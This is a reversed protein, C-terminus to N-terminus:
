ALPSKGNRRYATHLADSFTQEIEHAIQAVSAAPQLRDVEEFFCRVMTAQHDYTVGHRPLVGAAWEFEQKALEPAEFVLVAQVMRFFRDVAMSRLRMEPLIGGELKLLSELEPFIMLLRVAVRRCILEEHSTLFEALRSAAVSNM